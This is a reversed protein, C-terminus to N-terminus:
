CTFRLKTRWPHSSFSRPAHRPLDTQEHVCTINPLFAHVKIYEHPQLFLPYLCCPSLSATLAEFTFVVSELMAAYSAMSRCTNWGYTVQLKRTADKRTSDIEYFSTKYSNKLSCAVTVIYRKGSFTIVLLITMTKHKQVRTNRIALKIRRVLQFNKERSFEGFNKKSLLVNRVRRNVFSTM